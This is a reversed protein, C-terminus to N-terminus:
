CQEIDRLVSAGARDRDEDACDPVETGYVMFAFHYPEFIFCVNRHCLLLHEHDRLFHSLSESRRINEHMMTDSRKCYTIRSNGDDDRRWVPRSCEIGASVDDFLQLLTHRDPLLFHKLISGLPDISARSTILNLM